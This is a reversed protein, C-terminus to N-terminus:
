NILSILIFKVVFAEKYVQADCLHKSNNTSVIRSLEKEFQIFVM